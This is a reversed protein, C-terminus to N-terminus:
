SDGKAPQGQAASRAWMYSWALCIVGGTILGASPSFLWAGLSVLCAGILGLLFTFVSILM